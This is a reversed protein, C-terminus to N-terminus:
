EERDLSKRGRGRPRSPCEERGECLWRPPRGRRKGKGRALIELTVIAQNLLEREQELAKLMAYVDM